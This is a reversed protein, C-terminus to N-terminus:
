DLDQNLQDLETQMQKVFADKEAYTYDKMNFLTAGLAILGGVLVASELAAVIWAVLPGAM